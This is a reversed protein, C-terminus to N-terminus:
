PKATQQFLGMLSENASQILELALLDSSNASTHITTRLPASNALTRSLTLEVSQEFEPKEDEDKEVLLSLAKGFLGKKKEKPMQVLTPKSLIKSTPLSYSEFEEGGNLHYEGEIRLAVQASALTTSISYGQSKLYERLRETFVPADTYEIFVSRNRDESLARQMSALEDPNAQAKTTTSSLATGLKSSGWEWLAGLGSQEAHAPSSSLLVLSIVTCLSAIRSPRFRNM